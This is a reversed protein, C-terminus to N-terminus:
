SLRALPLRLLTGLKSLQTEWSSFRSQGPRRELERVIRGLREVSCIFPQAREDLASGDLGLYGAEFSRDFARQCESLEGFLPLLLSDHLHGLGTGELGVLRIYDHLAGAESLADLVRPQERGDSWRKNRLAYKTSRLYERQVSCMHVLTDRDLSFRPVSRFTKSAKHDTVMNTILNGLDDVALVFPEVHEDLFVGHEPNVSQLTSTCTLFKQIITFDDGFGHILLRAIAEALRRATEVFMELDSPSKKKQWLGIREKWATQQLTHPLTRFDEYLSLWADARAKFNLTVLGNVSAMQSAM